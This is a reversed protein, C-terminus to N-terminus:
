LALIGKKRKELHFHAPIRDWLEDSGGLYVDCIHEVFAAFEGARDCRVQREPLLLWGWLAGGDVSGARGISDCDKEIRVQYQEGRQFTGCDLVQEHFNQVCDWVRFKGLLGGVVGWEYVQEYSGSEQYQQKSQEESHFLPRNCASGDNRFFLVPMRWHCFPGVM